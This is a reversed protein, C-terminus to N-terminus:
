AQGNSQPYYTTSTTHQLMFHNTLIEIADNIFHISQDSTLILLCGFRTLIFEYIFKAIVVMINTCLAKAEVWKTANDIAVMINKNRTYMNIPKIPGVFDLGWKMFPKALLLIVLKMINSQILHKTRQYNDCAQFYQLADKHMMPWWYNADLIKYIKIKSSIRGGCVGEHTEHLM